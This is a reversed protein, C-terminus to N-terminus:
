PRKWVQMPGSTGGNDVKDIGDSPQQIGGLIATLVKLGMSILNSWPSPQVNDDIDNKSPSSVGTSPGLLMQMLIGLMNGWSFGTNSGEQITNANLDDIDDLVVKKMANPKEAYKRERTAALIQQESLQQHQPLAFAQSLVLCALGLSVYMQYRGM